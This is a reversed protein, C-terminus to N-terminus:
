AWFLFTTVARMIEVVRWSISKGRRPQVPRDLATAGAAPRGELVDEIEPRGGEGVPEQGVLEQVLGLRGGRQREREARRAAEDLDALRHLRLDEESSVVGYYSRIAYM